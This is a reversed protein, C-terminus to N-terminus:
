SAEQQPEPAQPYLHARSWPLDNNGVRNSVVQYLQLEDISFAVSGAGAM